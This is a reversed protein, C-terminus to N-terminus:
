DSGVVGGAIVRPPGEVTPVPGLAPDTWDAVTPLTLDGVQMLDLLGCNGTDDSLTVESDIPRLVYETGTPGCLTGKVISFQPYWRDPNGDGDFDVTTQPIGGLNGPGGYNLLYTHLDYASDENADDATHHTYSFQIPADFAV